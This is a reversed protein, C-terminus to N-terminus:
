SDGDVAAKPPAPPLQNPGAPGARRLSEARNLVAEFDPRSVEGTRPELVVELRHEDEWGFPLLIESIYDLPFISYWPEEVELVEAFSRYGPKHLSVRRHGYAEFPVELPTRGVLQGDLFVQAGAPETLFVMSRDARCGALALCAILAGSSPRSLM